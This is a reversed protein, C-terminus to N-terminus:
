EVFTQAIDYAIGGGKGFLHIYKSIAIYAVHIAKLNQFSNILTDERDACWSVMVDARATSVLALPSADTITSDGVAGGGGSGGGGGGGGACVKGGM